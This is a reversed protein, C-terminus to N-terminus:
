SKTKKPRNSSLRSSPASTTKRKGLSPKSPTEREWEDDQEDDSDDVASGEDQLVVNSNDLFSLLYSAPANELDSLGDEDGSVDSVFEKEGWENEQEEEWEENEEDTEDDMLDLEDREKELETGKKERDLLAQWM